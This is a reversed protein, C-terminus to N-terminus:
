HMNYRIEKIYNLIDNQTNMIFDFDHKEKGM